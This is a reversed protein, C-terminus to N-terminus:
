GVYYTNLVESKSPKNKFQLTQVGGDDKYIIDPFVQQFEEIKDMLGEKSLCFVSGVGNTDFLEQFTISDGYKENAVICYLVILAPLDTRSKMEIRYWQGQSEKGVRGLKEIINLEHLLASFSDEVTSSKSSPQYNNLFVGVDRKITNENYRINNTSCYKVIYKIFHERTFEVRIKRFQNFAMSYISAHEMTVLQHHLLWLTGIDECYADYGNEAFITKGLESVIQEGEEALGFARLWYRIAYVMNKGVGLDIVADKATFSRGANIFDIGKKLWYHRCYFTDHGSFTLKQM